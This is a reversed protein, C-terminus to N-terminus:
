HGPLGLHQTLRKQDAELQDLEDKKKRLHERLEEWYRAREDHTMSALEAKGRFRFSTSM